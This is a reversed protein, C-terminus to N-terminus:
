SMRAKRRLGTPVAIGIAVILLILLLEVKTDALGLLSNGTNPIEGPIVTIMTEDSDNAGASSTVSAVNKIADGIEATALVKVDIEITRSSNAPITDWAVSLTNSAEAFGIDAGAARTDQYVTLTDIVDTVIVNTIAKDNPNTVELLYTVLEGRTAVTVTKDGTETEVLKSITPPDLTAGQVAPTATPTPTPEETPTATPEVTPTPEDTPAATPEETATPEATPEDTPTATPEDTPTATPEDTPTATPEETATPTFTPTETPVDTATATPTPPEAVAVTVEESNLYTFVYAGGCFREGYLRATLGIDGAETARVTYTFPMTVPPGFKASDPDVFELQAGADDVLLTIDFVPYECPAAVDLSVVVDFEDGIEVTDVPAEIGVTASFTPEPTPTATNTPTPEVTPTATPEETPTATPEITPTPTPEVTPDVVYMVSRDTVINLDSNWNIVDKLTVSSVTTGDFLVPDNDEFGISTWDYGENWFRDGDRIREFQDAIVHACTEGILGGNVPNESLGGIWLDIDDVSDYVEGIAQATATDTDIDTFDTAATMGMAERFDNYSPLGHDRGRQINLAALDLGIGFTGVGVFLLNRMDDVVELDLTQAEKLTLGYLFGEIGNDRIVDPNFYVDRLDFTNSIDGNLDAFNITGSVMSHGFRYCGTAFEQAIDPSVTDDYGAYPGPAGDGLLIPLFENFTIQQMEAIVLMRARQYIEEDTLTPFEAKLEDALRNHERSFLTHMATLGPQENVRVDGSLFQDEGNENDPDNILFGEATMAMKGDGTRLEAATVADSGYIHSGDMWATISNLQQRPDTIGTAPDYESRKLTMDLGLTYHPDGFAVPIIFEEEPDAEHVLTIDHDLFQGWQWFMDSIEDSNPNLAPQDNLANSIDRPNPLTTAENIGGGRPESIGDAYAATHMRTLQVLTQGYEPNASNNDSGDISYFEGSQAQSSTQPLLLFLALLACTFFSYRYSTTLFMIVM